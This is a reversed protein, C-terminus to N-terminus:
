SIVHTLAQIGLIEMEEDFEIWNNLWDAWFGIRLECGQETLQVYHRRMLKEAAISLAPGGKQLQRLSVPARQAALLLLIKKEENTLHVRYINQLAFRARPDRTADQLSDTMLAPTVSTRGQRAAKKILHDLLLKTVYPIGGSTQFLWNLAQESCVLDEELIGTVLDNTEEQSLPGLEVLVARTLFAPSYKIVLAQPIETMTLLLTFPLNSAPSSLADIIKLIQPLDPHIRHLHTDETDTARVVEDFEDIALLFHWNPLHEALDSLAQLFTEASQTAYTLLSGLNASEGICGALSRLIANTFADFSSIGSTGISLTSLNTVYASQDVPGAMRAPAVRAMLRKVLINLLSTKGIRRGGLILRPRIWEKPFEGVLKELEASRGYFDAEEQISDPFFLPKM